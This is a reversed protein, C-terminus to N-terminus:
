EALRKWVEAAEAGQVTKGQPDGPYNIRVSLGTGEGSKYVSQINRIPIGLTGGMHSVWLFASAHAGERLSKWLPEAAPGDVTKNDASSFNLRLRALKEATGPAYFISEVRELNVAVAGNMHDMVVFAPKDMKRTEEGASAQTTVVTTAMAVPVLVRLLKLM